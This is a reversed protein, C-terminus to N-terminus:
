LVFTKTSFYRYSPRTIIKDNECNIVFIVGLQV